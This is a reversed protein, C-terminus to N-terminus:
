RPHRPLLRRAALAAVVLAALAFAPPMPTKAVVLPAGRGTTEFDAWAMRFAPDVTANLPPRSGVAVEVHGTANLSDSFTWSYRFDGREDLGIPECLDAGKDSPPCFRRGDDLVLALRVYGTAPRADLSLGNDDYPDKRELLRGSVSVRADWATAGRDTCVGNSVALARLLFDSRRFFPDLAKTQEVSGSPGDVKVTIQGSPNVERLTYYGLFTGYCDTGITLPQARVGPAELSAVVSGRVLPNGDKDIVRGAIVYTTGYSGTIPQILEQAAVSPALLALLVLAVPLRRM